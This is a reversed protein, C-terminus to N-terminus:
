EREIICAISGSGAAFSGSAPLFRVGQCAGTQANNLVGSSLSLLSGGTTAILPNSGAANALPNPMDVEGSVAANSSPSTLLAANTTGGDGGGTNIKSWTYNSSTVYSGNFKQQADITVSAAPGILGQLKFKLRRLEPDGFVAEFAVSAQSATAVASALARKARGITKWLTASSRLAFSEGPYVWIEDKADINQTFNLKLVGTGSHLLEVGFDAGVVSIDGAWTDGSGTYELVKGRDTLALTKAGTVALVPVLHSVEDGDPGIKGGVSIIWNAYTGAGDAGGTPIFVTMTKATNDVATIRGTMAQTADSAYAINVWQGFVFERGSEAFTFAKSTNEGIARSTTSTATLVTADIMGASAAEVTAVQAVFWTVATTLEAAWTVIWALFANARSVFTSPSARTPATPPTTFTPTTM